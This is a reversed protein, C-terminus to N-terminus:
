AVLVAGADSLKQIVTADEEIMRDKFPSVGWTTPAGKASLLDKAGYPIGHLPGRYKGAAIEEDARGAERLAREELLNVVCLLKPGIQKLRSLYLKTLETSTIKKSQIMRALQAISAFAVHDAEPKSVDQSITLSSEGVPPKTGPLRPDFRVAPAINPDITLKNLELYKQRRKTVIGLMQKRQQATYNHGTVKDVTELDDPTIADTQTTAPDGMVDGAAGLVCAAVIGNVMMRRSVGDPQNSM